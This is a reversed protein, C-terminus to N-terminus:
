TKKIFETRCVPCTIVIKGRGKPVRLTNKCKPCRYYKYTKKDRIRYTQQRQWNSFRGSNRRFGGSVRRWRALFWENERWRASNNRSLMRFFSWALLVLGITAILPIGAADSVFLLVCYAILLAWSLQDSGHRGAMFRNMGYALRSFFNM